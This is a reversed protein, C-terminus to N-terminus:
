KAKKKYQQYPIKGIKFEPTECIQTFDYDIAAHRLELKNIIIPRQTRTMVARSVPSMKSEENAVAQQRLVKVVERDNDTKIYKVENNLQYMQAVKVTTM